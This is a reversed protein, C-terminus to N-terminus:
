YSGTHGWLLDACRKVFGASHSVTRPISSGTTAMFLIQGEDDTTEEEEPTLQIDACDTLIRNPARWVRLPEAEGMGRGGIAAAAPHGKDGASLIGGRRGSLLFLSSFSSFLADTRNSLLSASKVSQLIKLRLINQIRANLAGPELAIEGPYFSQQLGLNRVPTRLFHVTGKRIVSTNVHTCRRQRKRKGSNERNQREGPLANPSPLTYITSQTDVCPALFTWHYLFM